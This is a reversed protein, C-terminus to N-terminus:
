KSRAPRRIAGSGGISIAIPPKDPVPFDTSARDDDARIDDALMQEAGALGGGQRFGGIPGIDRRPDVALKRAGRLTDERLATGNHEIGGIQLFRFSRFDSIARRGAASAEDAQEEGRIEGRPQRPDFPALVIGGICGPIYGPFLLSERDARYVPM